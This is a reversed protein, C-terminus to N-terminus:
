GGIWNTLPDLCLLTGCPCTVPDQTAAIRDFEALIPDCRREPDGSTTTLGTIPFPGPFFETPLTDYWVYTREVLQQPPQDALTEATVDLQTGDESSMWADAHCGPRRQSVGPQVPKEDVTLYTYRPAPQHGWACTAREWRTAALIIPAYRAIDFPLALSGNDSIPMDLVRVPEFDTRPDPEVTGIALPLHPQNYETIDWPRVPHGTIDPLTATNM